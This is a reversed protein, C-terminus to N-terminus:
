DKIKSIMEAEIQDAVTKCAKIMETMRRRLHAAEGADELMDLNVGVNYFAGRVALSALQSGVTIDSFANQNGITALEELLALVEGAREATELPTYVAGRGAKRVAENRAAQESETEKPLRYAALVAEFSEADESVLEKLRAGLRELETKIQKLRPEADVYKKKGISINCMMRGLAAALEGAHAAVSGGGPTPTGAAVLESFNGLSDKVESGSM